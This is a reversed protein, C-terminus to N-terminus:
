WLGLAQLYIDLTAEEAERQDKDQRRMKLIHRLAKPDYGFGKVEKFVEKIDEVTNRRDEDLREIRDIFARLQDADIGTNTSTGDKM